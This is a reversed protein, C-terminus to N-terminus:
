WSKKIHVYRPIKSVKPMSRVIHQVKLNNTKKNIKKCEKSNEYNQIHMCKRWTQGWLFLERHRQDEQEEIRFVIELLFLLKWAIRLEKCEQFKLVM